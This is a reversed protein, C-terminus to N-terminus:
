TRLKARLKESKKDDDGERIRRIHDGDLVREEIIKCYGENNESGWRRGFAEAVAYTTGSGGFPDWLWIVRM